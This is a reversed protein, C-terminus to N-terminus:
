NREPCLILIMTWITGRQKWHAQNRAEISVEVTLLCWSPAAIDPRLLRPVRRWVAHAAAERGRPNARSAAPYHSGHAIGGREFSLSLGLGVFQGAVGSLESSPHGWVCWQHGAHTRTTHRCARQISARPCLSALDAVSWRCHLARRRALSHCRWRHDLVRKPGHLRSSLRGTARNTWFRRSGM